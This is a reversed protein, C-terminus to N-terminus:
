LGAAERAARLTPRASARAKEAGLDLAKRVTASDKELENRRERADHFRELMLALLRKKVEGYGIGGAQYRREVDLKEEESALLKFLAFLKCKDPDKPEAIPTSDTQIGMIKSKLSKEPEFLGLANGYSKSM